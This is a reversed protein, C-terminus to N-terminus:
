LVRMKRAYFAEAYGTESACEVGRIRMIAHLTEADFWQKSHQSPFSELLWRTKTEVDERDVAVYCNPRGLDADYKVVEYELIQNNRFTQWTMDSVVRHDQHRDDRFHTFVLDPNLPQLEGSFFDKIAAGEFPFRSDTFDGHIVDHNHAGSLYRQASEAAERRREDSGSLVVWTIQTAPYARLMRMITAGCGIEIDDAHAGLMLVRFPRDTPIRPDFALM